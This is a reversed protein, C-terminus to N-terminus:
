IQIHQAENMGHAASEAEIIHILLEMTDEDTSVCTTDDDYLVADCTAAQM